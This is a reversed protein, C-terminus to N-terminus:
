ESLNIRGDNSAAPQSERSQGNPDRKAATRGHEDIQDRRNRARSRKLAFAAIGGASTAGTVYWTAVGICMPCM